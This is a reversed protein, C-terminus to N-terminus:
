KVLTSSLNQQWTRREAATEFRGNYCIWGAHRRRGGPKDPLTWVKGHSKACNGGGMNYTTQYDTVVQAAEGLGCVRVTKKPGIDTYQQHDPNGAAHLTVEHTYPKAPGLVVTKGSGRDLVEGPVYDGIMYEVEAKQQPSVTMLFVPRLEAFSATALTVGRKDHVIFEKNNTYLQLNNM